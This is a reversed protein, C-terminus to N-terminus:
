FSSQRLVRFIPTTPPLAGGVTNFQAGGYGDATNVKMNPVPLKKNYVADIMSLGVSIADSQEQTLVIGPVQNYVDRVLVAFALKKLFSNTVAAGDSSDVLVPLPSPYGVYQLVTIVTTRAELEYQDLRSTGAGAGDELGLAQAQETGIANDLYEPTIWAM